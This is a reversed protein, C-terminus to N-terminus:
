KLFDEYVRSEPISVLKETHSEGDSKDGYRVEYHRTEKNHSISLVAQDDSKIWFKGYPTQYRISGM